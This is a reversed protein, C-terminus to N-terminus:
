KGSMKKQCVNQARRAPVGRAQVNDMCKGMDFGQGSTKTVTGKTAAHAPTAIAIAAVVALIFVKM